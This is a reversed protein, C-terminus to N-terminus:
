EKRAHHRQDLVPEARPLTRTWRAERALAQSSQAGTRKDSLCLTPPRGSLSNKRVGGPQDRAPCRQDQPPVVMSLYQMWAWLTAMMEVHACTLRESPCTRRGCRRFRPFISARAEALEARQVAPETQMRADRGAPRCYSDQPVGVASRSSMMARVAQQYSEEAM